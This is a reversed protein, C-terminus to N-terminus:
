AVCNHCDRSGILKMNSAWIEAEWAPIVRPDQMIFFASEASPEVIWDLINQDDHRKHRRHSHRSYRAQSSNKIIGHKRTEGDSWLNKDKSLFLLAMTNLTTRSEKLTMIVLCESYRYASTKELEPMTRSDCHLSTQSTRTSSLDSLTAQAVILPAGDYSLPIGTRQLM